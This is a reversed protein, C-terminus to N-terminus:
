LVAERRLAQGPRRGPSKRRARGASKECKKAGGQQKRRRPRVAGPRLHSPECRGVPERGWRRSARGQSPRSGFNASPPRQARVRRSTPLGRTFAGRRAESAASPAVGGFGGLRRRRRPRRPTDRGTKSGNTGGNHGRPRRTRATPWRNHKGRGTSGPSASASKPRRRPQPKNHTVGLM